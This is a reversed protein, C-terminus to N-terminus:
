IFEILYLLSLSHVQALGVIVVVVVVVVAADVVVVVVDVACFFACIIHFLWKFLIICVYLFVSDRVRARVRAAGCVCLIIM